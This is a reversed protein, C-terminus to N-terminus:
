ESRGSALVLYVTVFPKLLPRINEKAQKKSSPGTFSGGIKWVGLLKYDWMAGFPIIEEQMM